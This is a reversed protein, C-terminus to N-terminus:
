QCAGTRQGDGRTVIKVPKGSKSGTATSAITYSTPTYSGTSAVTLGDPFRKNTCLTVYAFRGERMAFRSMRCEAKKDQTLLAYPTDRAQDVTLCSKRARNGAFMKIMFQPVGPVDASVMETRHNWAGPAFGPDSSSALLPLGALALLLHM